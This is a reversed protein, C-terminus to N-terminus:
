PRGKVISAALEAVLRDYPHGDRDSDLVRMLVDWLDARDFGHMVALDVLPRLTELWQEVLAIRESFSRDEIRREDYVHVPAFRRRRAPPPPSHGRHRVAEVAPVQRLQPRVSSVPAIGQRRSEM